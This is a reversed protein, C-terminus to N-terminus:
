LILFIFVIPPISCLFWALRSIRLELNEEEVLNVIAIIICLMLYCMTWIKLFIM